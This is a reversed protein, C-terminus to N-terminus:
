KERATAGVEGITEVSAITNSACTHTQSESGCGTTHVLLARVMTYRTVEWRRVFVVQELAGVVMSNMDGREVAAGGVTLDGRMVIENGDATTTCRHLIHVRLDRGGCQPEIRMLTQSGLPQLPGATEKGDVVVMGDGATEM